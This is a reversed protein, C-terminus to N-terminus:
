WLAVVSGRSPGSLRWYSDIATAWDGSKDEYTELDDSFLIMNDPVPYWEPESLVPYSYQLLIIQDRDFLIPRAASQGRSASTSTAPLVTSFDKKLTWSAGFDDSVYLKTYKSTTSSRCFAFVRNRYKRSVLIDMVGIPAGYDAPTVDIFTEGNDTSLLLLPVTIDTGTGTVIRADYDGAWEMSRFMCDRDTVDERAQFLLGNNEIYDVFSTVDLARWDDNITTGLVPTGAETPKTNWTVSGSTWEDDIGTIWFNDAAQANCYVHMSLHLADKERQCMPVLLDANIDWKFLANREASGSTVYSAYLTEASDYNTDPNESDIYSDETVRGIITPATIHRTTAMLIYQDFYLTEIASIQGGYPLTYTNTFTAAGDSSYWLSGSTGGYWVKDGSVKFGTAGGSAQMATFTWSIGDDTTKGIHEAGSTAETLIYVTTGSVKLNRINQLTLGTATNYEAATLVHEWVVPTALANVTKYVGYSSALAWLPVISDTADDAERIVTLYNAPLTYTIDTYSPSGSSFDLTRAVQDRTSIFVKDRDRLTGGGPGIGSIYTPWRDNLIVATKAGETPSLTSFIDTIGMNDGSETVRQPVKWSPQFGPYELSRVDGHENYLALATEALAQAIANSTILPVHFGAVRVNPDGLTDGTAKGFVTGLGWIKVEHRTHRDDESKDRSIYETTLQHSVSEEAINFMVTGDPEVWTYMGAFKNIELLADAVSKPGIPVDPQTGNTALTSNYLYPVGTLGMLYDIYDGITSGSSIKVDEDVWTASVKAWTDMGSVAVKGRSPHYDMMYGTLVKVGEEYILVDDWVDESFTEFTAEWLGGQTHLHNERKYREPVYTTGNIVLYINM